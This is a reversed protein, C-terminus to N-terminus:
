KREGRKRHEQLHAICAVDYEAMSLYGRSDIITACHPCTFEWHSRDGSQRKTVDKCTLCTYSNKEGLEEMMEDTPCGKCPNAQKVEEGVINEMGIVQKRNEDLEM